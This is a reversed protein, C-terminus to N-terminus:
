LLARRSLQRAIETEVEILYDQLQAQNPTYFYPELYRTGLDGWTLVGGDDGYLSWLVRIRAGAPNGIGQGVFWGGNHSYYHVIMPVLVADTGPPLTPPATLPLPRLDFRPLNQNDTGDLPGSGRVDTRMPRAPVVEATMPAWPIAREDLLNAFVGDLWGTAQEAYRDEHRLELNVSRPQNDFEEFRVFGGSLWVDGVYEGAYFPEGVADPLTYLLVAPALAIGPPIAAAPGEIHRLAPNGCALLLPLM